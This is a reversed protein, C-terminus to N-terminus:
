RKKRRGQRPRQRAMREREREALGQEYLMRHLGVMETEVRGGRIIRGAAGCSPEPEREYFVPEISV